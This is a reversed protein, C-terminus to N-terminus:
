LILWLVVTPQKTKQFKREVAVPVNVSLINKAFFWNVGPDIYISYGARRFGNSEGIVDNVPIGDIRAGLSVSVGKSPWIAYSFGVRGFYQDPVTNVLDIAPSPRETGNSDRPNFLYYGSLYGYLNELLEQFAQIQLHIGL